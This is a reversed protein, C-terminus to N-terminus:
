LVFCLFCYYKNHKIVLLSIIMKNSSSLYYQHTTNANNKRECLKLLTTSNFVHMCYIFYDYFSKICTTIFSICKKRKGQNICRSNKITYFSVHSITVKLKLWNFLICYNEFTVFFFSHISLKVELRKYVLFKDKENGKM